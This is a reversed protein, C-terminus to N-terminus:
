SATNEAARLRNRIEYLCKCLYENQTIFDTLYKETIVFQINNLSRTKTCLRQEGDVDTIQFSHVIRNRKDTLKKYLDAISENYTTLERRIYELLKGSTKDTLEYWLKSPKNYILNEIVFQTNSNFVCLASGLLERYKRSPLSQRTYNECM